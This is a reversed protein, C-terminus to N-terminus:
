PNNKKRNILLKLSFVHTYLPSQQNALDIFAYDINVNKINFGAGLGPQFIWVKKQDLTDADALARQFNHLGGRFYFQNKYNVEFGIRPDISIAKTSVLTNRKGDFSCGLNVETLLHINPQIGFLYSGGLILQPSTLETSQVPIKNNTLYLVQKERDTFHFSWANFTTTVDKAVASAKWKNGKVTVAADLGFGWANAFSGVKRYIIKANGGFDVDLNAIKHYQQAYSFLFAYDASSFSQINNYNLSGDPEVLFLTNPIDDIAFRLVSVGITKAQDKVPIALAAYDYKAIGSFYDAHMLSLSPLDKVSTLGAPNWYGATADDASVIQANGMALGRAGAGINLFENSYTRFQATVSNLSFCFIFIFLVVTSHLRSQFLGISALWAHSFLLKNTTKLTPTMHVTHM